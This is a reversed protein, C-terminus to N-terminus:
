WSSKIDAWTTPQLTLNESYLEMFLDTANGYPLDSTKTWDGSSEVYWCTDEIQNNMVLIYNLTYGKFQVGVYYHLGALLNPRTEEPIGCRLKYVEMGSWYTETTEQTFQIEGEWYITCFNPNFCLAGDVLIVLNVKDVTPGYQAVWFEISSLMVEENLTFDDCLIDGDASTIHFGEKIEECSYPQSYIITGQALSLGLVGLMVGILKKM